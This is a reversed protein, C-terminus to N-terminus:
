KILGNFISSPGTSPYQRMIETYFDLIDSSLFDLGYSLQVKSIDMKLDSIRRLLGQNKNDKFRTLIERERKNITNEELFKDIIEEIKEETLKPYDKM